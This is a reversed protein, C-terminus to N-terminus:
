LQWQDGDFCRSSISKIITKFGISVRRTSWPKWVCVCLYESCLVTLHLGVKILNVDVCTVLIHVTKQRDLIIRTKM